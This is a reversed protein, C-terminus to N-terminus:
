LFLKLWLDEKNAINYIDSSLVPNCGRHFTGYVQMNFHVIDGRHKSLGVHNRLVINM